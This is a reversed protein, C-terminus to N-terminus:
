GRARSVARDYIAPPLVSASRVVAVLQWPFAVVPDRKDIGRAIIDAAEDAGMMWPMPHTNKATLETRVFGPRVDTVSIGAGRLDVRMGELLTSLFAKSASYVASKPLGRYQAMSSIGVLHGREREVMRDMLALVTAVAGDVNIRIIRECFDWDLEGSFRQGSVGANAVVLDIGGMEDDAARMTRKVDEVDRVDLPYVRARGGGGRIEKALEELREARRAALAVEVGDRALRLSLARGIGSSAGTIFATRHSM